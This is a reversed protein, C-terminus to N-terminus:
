YSVMKKHAGLVLVLVLVLQLQLVVLVVIIVRLLRKESCYHKDEPNLQYSYVRCLDRFNYYNYQHYQLQLQYQYQYQYQSSMLLHNRVLNLFSYILFMLYLQNLLESNVEYSPPNLSALKVHSLIIVM